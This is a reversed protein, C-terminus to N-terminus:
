KHPGSGTLRYEIIALKRPEDNRSVLFFSDTSWCHTHWERIINGEAILGGEDEITTDQLLNEEDDRNGKM